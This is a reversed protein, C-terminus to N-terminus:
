ASKAALLSAAVQADDPLGDVRVNAETQPAEPVNSFLL